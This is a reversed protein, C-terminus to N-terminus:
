MLAFPIATPFIVLYFTYPLFIWQSIGSMCIHNTIETTMTVDQIKIKM